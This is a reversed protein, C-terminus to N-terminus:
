EISGGSLVTKAVELEKVKVLDRVPQTANEAFVKFFGSMLFNKLKEKSFEEKSQPNEVYLTYRLKLDIIELTIGDISDNFSNLEEITTFVKEQDSGLIRPEWNKGLNDWLMERTIQIGNIAPLNIQISEM